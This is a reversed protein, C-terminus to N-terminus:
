GTQNRSYYLIGEYDNKEIRPSIKVEKVEVTKQKKRAENAKKKQEYRYKGYDMIKCVPPEANPSMEVLDLSANGAMEQAKSLEVIGQMEGKEDVLRVPDATIASNIRPGKDRRPM